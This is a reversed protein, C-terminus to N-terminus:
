FFIMLRSEMKWFVDKEQRDTFTDHAHFDAKQM